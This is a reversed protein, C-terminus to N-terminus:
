DELSIESSDEVLEKAREGEAEMPVASTKM